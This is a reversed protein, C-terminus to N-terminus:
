LAKKYKSWGIVKTSGVAQEQEWAQLKRYITSASVELMAAARPINEGCRTIANEIAEKEIQWLPRLQETNENTPAIDPKHDSNSQNTNTSLNNVTVNTSSPNQPKMNLPAPLMEPTVANGQNLVVINRTINQLQRVNGPWTYDCLIAEAEPSFRMFQKNEEASFKELFHQAITIVDDDRECLPPLQIPIVHLRYYLDERFRGENVEQLPDRNTACVFRVDVKETVNCGVKNFTGTQIFRLLKSQLSLDMECIEDLFLTGGDALSAAGKRESVAGTFAGKTHGFIESEILDKPIAACNLTILSKDHRSSQKHIAEACLEKGTGSEGTVFVTAQSPAASDIIQYVTQMPQSQGIFDYYRDRDFTEKYNNIVGQLQQHEIANRLTILLRNADFPKTLFDFAGHRMADIAIDVSGHATIIVVSIPLQENYIKKLIEMGEIDPLQLDLLIAHPANTEILKLAQMGNNAHLIKYPQKHLYAKYVVALEESDEVLLITPQNTKSDMILQSRSLLM